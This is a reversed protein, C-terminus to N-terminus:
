KMPRSQLKTKNRCKTRKKVPLLEPEVIPLDERKRNFYAKFDHGELNFVYTNKDICKKTFLHKITRFHAVDDSDMDGERLNDYIKSTHMARVKKCDKVDVICFWDDGTRTTIMM